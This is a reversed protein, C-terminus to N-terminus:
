LLSKQPSPLGHSRWRDPTREVIMKEPAVTPGFQVRILEEAAGHLWADYDGPLLIV